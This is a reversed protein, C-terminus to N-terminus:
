IAAMRGQKSVSELVRATFFFVIQFIRGGLLAFHIVLEKYRDFLSDLTAVSIYHDLRSELGM